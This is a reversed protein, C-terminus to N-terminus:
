HSAEQWWQSMGPKSPTKETAVTKGVYSSWNHKLVM